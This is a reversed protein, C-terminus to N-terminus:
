AGSRTRSGPRALYAAGVLPNPLLPTHIEVTGVKAAEPCTQEASSELGIEGLGCSLLGDAGAPNLAVGAPLAVTTDKVTSDALGTPNLSGEQPVHVGVTLGSSSSAQQGDPAVSIQPEFKLRNCGDIGYPEGLSNQFTYSFPETFQGADEWSDSEMTTHLPGTCSTPMILFPQPKEHTACTLAPEGFASLRDSLCEIGRQGDHRHDAPVGWFTVQSGILESHEVINSVTVVVGYDGGTRVSTDLLVPGFLSAQFGFRAPEGVAPELSFLPYSESLPVDQPAVGQLDVTVTAVGVITDAPCHEGGSVELAFDVMSCKPLPTPNGILGPPLSFRLDKTYALPRVRPFEGPRGEEPLVGHSHLMFSTTLQFPHSGAQTAPIGNAEEPTVEYSQVGFSKSAPGELALPRRSVVGSAGGGSVSVENEGDGKGAAVTATIAVIIQEYPRVPTAYKCEVTQGSISCLKQGKFSQIDAEVVERENTQGLNTGGGEAYVSTPTVGAPLQDIVTVFKKTEKHFLYEGLNGDVTGTTKEDGLNDIDLDITSETENGAPPASITSLHWWPFLTEAHAPTVSGVSLLITLVAPAFFQPLKSIAPRPRLPSISRRFM